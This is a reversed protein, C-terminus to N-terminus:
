LSHLCLVCQDLESFHKPSWLMYSFYYTELNPVCICCAIQPDAALCDSTGTAFVCLCHWSCGCAYRSTLACWRAGGVGDDRAPTAWGRWQLGDCGTVIWPQLWEGRAEQRLSDPNCVVQQVGYERNIRLMFLSCFWLTALHPHLSVPLYSVSFIETVRDPTNGTVWRDIISFFVFVFNM